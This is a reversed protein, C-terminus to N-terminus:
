KFAGSGKWGDVAFYDLPLVAEDASDFLYPGFNEINTENLARNPVTLKQFETFIHGFNIDWRILCHPDDVEVLNPKNITWQVQYTIGPPRHLALTGYTEQATKFFIKGDREFTDIGQLRSTVSNVAPAVAVQNFGIEGNGIEFNEDWYRITSIKGEFVNEPCEFWGLIDEPTALIKEEIATKIKAKKLQERLRRYEAKNNATTFRSIGVIAANELSDTNNRPYLVYQGERSPHNKWKGVFQINWVPINIQCRVGVKKTCSNESLIATTNLVSFQKRVALEFSRGDPYKAIVPKGMLKQLKAISNPESGFGNPSFLLLFLFIM